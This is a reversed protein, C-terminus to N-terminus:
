WWYSPAADESTAEKAVKADAKEASQEKQQSSIQFKIMAQQKEALTTAAAQAAARTAMVNSKSGQAEQSLSTLKDKNDSSESIQQMIGKLHEAAAAEKTNAVGAALKAKKFEEEAADSQAKAEAAAKDAAMQDSAGASFLKDHATQVFGSLTTKLSDAEKEAARAEKLSGM